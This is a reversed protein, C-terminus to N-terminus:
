DGGPGPLPHSGRAARMALYLGLIWHLWLIYATPTDLM